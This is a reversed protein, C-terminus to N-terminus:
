RRERILQESPSEDGEWKMPEFDRFRPPWHKPVRIGPITRLIRLMEQQEEAFKAEEEPTRPAQPLNDTTAM